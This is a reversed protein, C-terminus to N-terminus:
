RKLIEYPKKKKCFWEEYKLQTKRDKWAWCNPNAINYMYMLEKIPRIKKTPTMELMPYMLARDYCCPAYEGKPGKFDEKDINRWLFARFTKLHSFAPSERFTRNKLHETADKQVPQPKDVGWKTRYKAKIAPDDPVAWTGFTLWCDKLNYTNNIMDFVYHHALWDDMDIVVIIDDDSVIFKDLQSAANALWGKNKKNKILVNRRKDHYKLLQKYTDDTSADDIGVYLFNKYTQLEISRRHRKVWKSCNVGCAFVVIRNMNRQKEKVYNPVKSMSKFHMGLKYQEPRNAKKDNIPNDVNYIYIEEPMHFLKHPPTMELLPYGIAWDYTFKAYGKGKPDLLRRKDLANWMFAKFTRMAWFRWNPYQRFARDRIVDEDYGLLNAERRVGTNRIPTGYTVWKDQDMYVRAIKDLVQDDALWDDLDVVCIVDEPHSIHEALYRIANEVWGVNTKNRIAICREHTNKQIAEWTNDTSSDDIVIHTINTYIKSCISETHKKVYKGCNYGASFVILRLM